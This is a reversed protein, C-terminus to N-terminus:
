GEMDEDLKESGDSEADEDDSQSWNEVVWEDLKDWAEDSLEFEGGAFPYVGEEDLMAEVVKTPISEGLFYSTHDWGAENTVIFRTETKGTECNITQHVQDCGPCECGSPLYESSLPTSQSYTMISILEDEGRTLRRIISGYVGEKEWGYPDVSM